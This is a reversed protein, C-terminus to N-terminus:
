AGRTPFLSRGPQAPRIERVVATDGGIAVQAPDGVDIDEIIRGDMLRIVRQGYSACVPDHTVMLITVGFEANGRRLLQMIGASATSDLNGTPEDALLVRPRTVLARAIAVRQMQGGSLESPKHHRRDFLEVLRLVRDTHEKITAAPRGDLLLPLAVNEEATLYPLLHFFQFIIGVDRRRFLAADRDSMASLRHQDVRVEGASLPTLGAALHLITSKGSGSPGMVACFQGEPVTFTLNRLVNVQTPGHGFTKSVNHFHIM